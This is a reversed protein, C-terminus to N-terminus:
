RALARRNCACTVVSRWSRGVSSSRGAYLHWSTAPRGVARRVLAQVQRSRRDRKPDRSDHLRLRLHLGPRLSRLRGGILCPAAAPSTLPPGFLDLRQVRYRRCLEALEARHREVLAIM